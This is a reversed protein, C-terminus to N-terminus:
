IGMVAANSQAVVNLGATAFGLSGFFSDYPINAAILVRKAGGTLGTYIGTYTTGTPDPCSITITITAPNTWYYLRPSGTGATNGFRVINKIQTETSSTGGCPMATFNQRAAYRAGDRVAKTVVHEDLFYKGLEFSGFMLVIFLPAIM